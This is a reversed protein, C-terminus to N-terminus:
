SFIKILEDSLEFNSYVNQVDDNNELLDHLKLIKRAINEDNILVTNKPIYIFNSELVKYSNNELERSIKELDNVKCIVQFTGDNNDILDDAGVDALFLFFVDFNLNDSSVIIQGKHSFLWSVCGTEGLNGDCKTFYSRIEGATRNRNDTLSNILFAVGGPGYGEYQIEEVNEVENNGIARQIARKINDAPMMASKAKDICAKLRFNGSPDPGGLKVAVFIEKAIKTFIAGRQADVKAKTRKIQAWKSHGAM